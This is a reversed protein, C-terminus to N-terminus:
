AGNGSSARDYYDNKRENIRYDGGSDSARKRSRHKRHGRRDVIAEHHNEIIKWESPDRYVFRKNKYSKRTTKFNVLHGIYNPNRLIKYVTSRHWLYPATNEEELKIAKQKKIANTINM